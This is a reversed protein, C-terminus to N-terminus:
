KCKGAGAPGTIFMCLPENSNRKDQRSLTKLKEYNEMSNTSAESHNEAEDIYGIVYTAALIEFATRQDEDLPADAGWKVISQWTGDADVYPFKNSNNTNNQESQFSSLFLENLVRFDTCNLETTYNSEATSPLDDEQFPNEFADQIDAFCRNDYETSSITHQVSNEYPTFSTEETQLMNDIGPPKVIQGIQQLLTEMDFENETLTSQEDINESDIPLETDTPFVNQMMTSELSNRIDHINNAIEIIESSILKESDAFKLRRTFSGDLKLNEVDQFPYFLILFRRSYDEKAIFDVDFESFPSEISSRFNRTSPLWTWSFVPLAPKERYVCAIQNEQPHDEQFHFMEGTSDFEHKSIVKIDRIFEYFCMNVFETPRYLYNMAIHVPVLNGDKNKKLSMITKEGLILHEAGFTSMPATDHSFLFRSDYLAMYHAMPASIIHSKTHIFIGALLRRFGEQAPITDNSEPDAELKQLHQVMIESVKSFAEREEKQQSKCNYCTCYYISRGNLGVIVNTNCQLIKTLEENHTNMYADQIPRKPYFRFMTRTTRIGKWDYWVDPISAFELVTKDRPADPLSAFCENCRKFCRNSHSVSHINYLANTAFYRKAVDEETGNFWTTNKQMEMVHRALRHSFDPIKLEEDQDTLHERLCNTVIENASFKVNCHLCKAINGSHNQWLQRHRMEHLQQHTASLPTNRRQKRHRTVQNVCEHSFVQQAKLVGTAPACDRFLQASCTSNYFKIASDIAEDCTFKENGNCHIAELVYKWNKIWVLIHGHLTKRGQEETALCWAETIGFLGPGESKQTTENWGLAHKIVLRIIRNYEEACLGPCKGRAECCIKHEFLIEENTLESVNVDTKTLSAAKDAPVAYAIIRISRQDDPTVTLMIAPIGFKMLYSFYKRRNDEVSENSHPLNSCTAHVSRLFTNAAGASYQRPHHQRADNVAASLDASSFRGLVEGFNTTENKKMNCKISASKYITERLILNEVILNFVAGHFVPNRHRLYKRLVNLRSRKMKKRNRKRKQLRQVAPDEDLGSFGYPFLLPFAQAIGDGKFDSIRDREHRAVLKADWKGTQHKTIFERFEAQSKFGGNVPEPLDKDPFIVSLNVRNEYNIDPTSDQIEQNELLIPLPVEDVDPIIENRYHINNEKLWNLAKIIRDRNVSVARKAVAVQDKTFPGSLVVYINGNMGSDALSNINEANRQHPNRFFTHWGTVCKHQGGFFQFIHAHIRVRSVLALEIENLVRLEEPADGIIYGNACSNIPPRRSFEGKTESNIKIEALCNKCIVIKNKTENLLSAPSLVYNKLTDCNKVHYCNLVSTEPYYEALLGSKMLPIKNLMNHLENVDIWQWWNEIHPISDCCCCVVGIIENSSSVHTFSDLDNTMNQVIHKRQAANPLGFVNM